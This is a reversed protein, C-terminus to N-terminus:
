AGRRDYSTEYTRNVGKGHQARGTGSADNSREVGAFAPVRARAAEPALLVVVKSTSVREAFFEAAQAPGVRTPLGRAQALEKILFRLDEKRGGCYTLVADGRRQPGALPVRARPV